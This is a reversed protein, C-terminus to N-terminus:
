CDSFDLRRVAFDNGNATDDEDHNNEDRNVDVHGMTVHHSLEDAVGDPSTQNNRVPANPVQTQRNAVPTTFESAQAFGNTPIINEPMKIDKIICFIIIGFEMLSKTVVINFNYILISFTHYGKQSM